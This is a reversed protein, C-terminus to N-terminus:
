SSGRRYRTTEFPRHHSSPSAPNLYSGIISGSALQNVKTMKRLWHDLDAINPTRPQINLVKTGWKSRLSDPLKQLILKLTGTSDIEQHHGSYILASVAAHLGNSFAKLSEPDDSQIDPLTLLKDIHAESVVLDLGYEEYLRSVAFNYQSPVQLSDAITDRVEKVLHQRLAAIRLADNPLQDHILAKFSGIFMPFNLPNGDFPEVKINLNSPDFFRPPPLVPSSGLSNFGLPNPISLQIGNDLGTSSSSPLVSHRHSSTCTQASPDTAYVAPTFGALRQTVSPNLNSSHQQASDFSSTARAASSRKLVRAAAAAFPDFHPAAAPHHVQQRYNIAPHLDVSDTSKRFPYDTSSCISAGSLCYVTSTLHSRTSEQIVTPSRTTDSALTSEQDASATSTSHHRSARESKVSLTQLMSSLAPITGARNATTNFIPRHLSDAYALDVFSSHNDSFQHTACDFAPTSTFGAVHASVPSSGNAVFAPESISRHSGFPDNTSQIPPDFGSHHFGASPDRFRGFQDMLQTGNFASPLPQQQAASPLSTSAAHVFQSYTVNHQDGFAAPDCGAQLTTSTYGPVHGTQQSSHPSNFALDHHRHHAAFPTTDFRDLPAAPPSAPSFGALQVQRQAWNRLRASSSSPAHVADEVPSSPYHRSGYSNLSAASSFGPDYGTQRMWHPGSSVSSERHHPDFTAPLIGTQGAASLFPDYGYQQVFPPCISAVPTHQQPVASSSPVNHARHAAPLYAPDYVAHQSPHSAYRMDFAHHAASHHVPDYGAHQMLRHLHPLDSPIHQQSVASSPPVNFALHAAMRYAPDYGAHQVSHPRLLATPNQQQLVASSPVDFASHAAPHFAPDYGAHLTPHSAVTSFAPVDYGAGNSPRSGIVFSAPHQREGVLNVIHTTSPQHLAAFSAPLQETGTAAIIGTLGSSSPHQVGALSHPVLVTGSATTMAPLSSAVSQHLSLSPRHTLGAAMRLRISPPSSIQASSSLVSSSGNRQTATTVIPSATSMSINM